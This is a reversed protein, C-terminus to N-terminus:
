AQFSLPPYTPIPTHSLANLQLIMSTVIVFPSYSISNEVKTQRIDDEENHKFSNVKHLIPVSYNAVLPDRLRGSCQVTELEDIGGCARTCDNM